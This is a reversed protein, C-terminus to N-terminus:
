KRHPWHYTLTIQTGAGPKSEVQFQGGMEEMRQRMNRLGDAGADDPVQGFGQGNDKIILTLSEGTVNAHFQVESAHAHRLVNNLTEQVTLFLNHRAEASVLWEPPHDPLDVLCRIDATRLFKVAFQGIYNILHPLTDNRPNLVWVTEDLSKIVHRATLSTQQALADVKDPAIRDRQTLESLTVIKTLSCGLDDHLDRAIRTREKDLASQQELTQLKFRLRRFSVYRVIATVILTFAALLATQFWWTQWIFPIVTFSLTAGTDNWVVSNNCAIVHFQYNGAPLRSYTASRETGDEIWDEDFGELKHRFQVNEPAAFSLATFEFELKHHDPPLRLRAIPNQLDLVGDANQARLPSHNDYRGVTQGDVAVRDILVPPPDPNDRINQTNIIVVGTRTAIRLSGDRGRFAAPYNDYNAQLGPLGEGRGFVISRVHSARGEAVDNLQQLPVRFFGRSGCLWLWGQEDAIIQSVYDDALGQATTIRSYKGAKLRGLGGGDAYGIWLAGDDTAYLCRISFPQLRGNTTENIVQDGDIRMLSGDATAAWINGATDQAMARISHAEPPPTFTQFRGDRLRQLLHPSDTGIWVDGNSSVLLSRVDESALGSGAQWIKFQDNQFRYLGSGRTGIWMAGGPAAAVCFARGGPWNSSSNVTTWGEGQQRTLFGDRNAAWLAGTADECISLVSEFPQANGPNRLELVQPRLRDLGGGGTGVWVNGERDEMLSDIVPHSTPVLEFGAGDFRFLGYATSTGIWLAGTHDELLIGAGPQPLVGRTQPKGQGDYKLLRRPTCIWIGGSRAAAITASNEELTLLTQFYGDRFVGIKNGKAFWLRGNADTALWCLGDSQLGDRKDFNTVQGNKIRSLGHHNGAYAIWVAGEGDEIMEGPLLDPLGDKSSFVQAQGSGVCVVVSRDMGLWLRGQHDLTLSRIVRGPVGPINVPSFEEFKTGDFRMLGGPTGVWLFGAPTQAVGSIVNDPLGDDTRWVRALWSNTAPSADASWLFLQFLIILGFKIRATMRPFSKVGIETM